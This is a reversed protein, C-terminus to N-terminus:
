NKKQSITNENYAEIRMSSEAISWYKSNSFKPDTLNRKLLLVDPRIEQKYEQDSFTKERKMKLYSDLAWQTIIIKLGIREHNNTDLNQIGYIVLIVYIVCYPLEIKRVIGLKISNM